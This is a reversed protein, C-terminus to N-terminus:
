STKQFQSVTKELSDLRSNIKKMDTLIQYQTSLLGMDSMIIMKKAEIIGKEMPDDTQEICEKYLEVRRAFIDLVKDHNDKASELLALLTNDRRSLTDFISLKEILNQM